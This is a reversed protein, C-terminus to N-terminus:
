RRWCARSQQTPSAAVFFSDGHKAKNSSKDYVRVSSGYMLTGKHVCNGYVFESIVQFTNYLLHNAPVLREFHRSSGSLSEDHYTGVVPLSFLFGKVNELALIEHLLNGVRKCGVASCCAIFRSALLHILDSTNSPLVQSAYSTIRSLSLRNCLAKHLNSLSISRDSSGEEPRPFGSGSFCLRDQRQDLRIDCLSRKIYRNSSFNM